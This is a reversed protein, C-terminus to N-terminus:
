SSGWGYLAPHVGVDAIADDWRARRTELTGDCLQSFAMSGERAFRSSYHPLGTSPVAQLGKLRKGNM